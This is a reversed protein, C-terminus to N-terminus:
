RKRNLRNKKQLTYITIRQNQAVFLYARGWHTIFTRVYKRKWGWTKMLKGGDLLDNSHHGNPYNVDVTSHTRVVRRVHQRFILVLSRSRATKTDHNSPVNFFIHNPKNCNKKSLHYTTDSLTHRFELMQIYIREFSNTPNLTDENWWLTKNACRADM